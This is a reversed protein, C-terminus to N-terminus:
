AKLQSSWQYLDAELADISGVPDTTGGHACHNRIQYTAVIKSYAASNRDLIMALKTEFPVKKGKLANNDWGRRHQWDHNSLRSDRAHEFKAIVAVEFQGFMLVFIGREFVDRKEELKALAILDNLSVANSAEVQWQVFFWNYAAKIEPLQQM